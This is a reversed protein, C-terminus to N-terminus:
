GLRQALRRHRHRFLAEIVPALVTASGVRPAFTVRDTLLTGAGDPVLTREHEWRQQLLSSSRELFGRGPRVEVLTLAHLDFPVLRGALLVSRFATAGLEVDELTKERAARPVTMRVLPALEHNVGEMTRAHDWVSAADARLRTTVTVTAPRRRRM